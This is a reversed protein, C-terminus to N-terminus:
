VPAGVGTAANMADHVFTAANPARSRTSYTPKEPVLLLQRGIMQATAIADITTPAIKPTVCVSMLRTSAYEDM